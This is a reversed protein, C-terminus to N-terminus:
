YNFHLLELKGNTFLMAGIYVRVNMDMGVGDQVCFGKEVEAPLLIEKM